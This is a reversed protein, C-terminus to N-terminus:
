PGAGEMKREDDVSPYLDLVRRALVESAYAKLNHLDAYELFRSDTVEKNEIRRKLKDEEKRHRKSRSNLARYVTVADRETLWLPEYRRQPM